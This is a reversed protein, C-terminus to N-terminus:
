KLPIFVQFSHRIRRSPLLSLSVFFVAHFLLRMANVQRQCHGRVPYPNSSFRARLEFFFIDEETRTAFFNRAEDSEFVSYEIDKKYNERAFDHM